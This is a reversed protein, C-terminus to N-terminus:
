AQPNLTDSDKPTSPSAPLHFAFVSGSGPTSSELEITGGSLKIIQRSIYLGLGTGKVPARTLIDSGAQQFKRFLLQKADDSMGVGSDAVRVTIRLGDFSGSIVISGSNTFKIANGVLNIIVQKIRDRDVFVSPLASLSQDALLAIGKGQCLKELEHVVEACVRALDVQTPHMTIKGQEIASTDLFDNVIGILRVVSAHIDNVMEAVDPSLSDAFHKKILATNGRIATLPTRLEHSAISFFEDKTRDLMKQETVDELLLVIGLLERVPKDTDVLLPAIFIHIIRGGIDINDRDISLKTTRCDSILRALELMPKFQSSVYSITLDSPADEPMLARFSQNTLVIEGGVDCMAFGKDITDLFSYAQSTSGILQETRHIAEAEAMRKAQEFESYARNIEVLLKQFQEPLAGLSVGSLNLQELLKPHLETTSDM